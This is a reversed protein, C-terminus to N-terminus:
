EKLNREPKVNFHYLLDKPLNLKELESRSYSNLVAVAAIFKLTFDSRWGLKFVSLFEADKDEKVDREIVVVECGPWNVMIQSVICRPRWPLSLICMCTKTFPDIVFVKGSIGLLVRVIGTSVHCVQHQLISPEILVNEIDTRVNFSRYLSLCNLSYDVKYIKVHFDIIGLCVVLEGHIYDWVWQITGQMNETGHAIVCKRAVSFILYHDKNRNEQFHVLIKDSTTNVHCSLLAYSEYASIEYNLIHNFEKIDKGCNFIDIYCFKSQSALGGGKILGNSVFCFLRSDMSFAGVPHFFIKHKYSMEHINKFLKGQSIERHVTEDFTLLSLYCSEEFVSKECLIAFDKQPSIFYHVNEPITFSKTFRKSISRKYHTYCTYVFEMGGHMSEEDPSINPQMLLIQGNGVLHYSYFFAHDNTDVIEEDTDMEFSVVPGLLRGNTTNIVCSLKNNLDCTLFSKNPNQQDNAPALFAM